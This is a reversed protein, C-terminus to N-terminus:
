PLPLLLLLLSHHNSRATSAPTFCRVAHELSGFLLDDTAGAEIGRQAEECVWHDERQFVTEAILSWSLDWHETERV